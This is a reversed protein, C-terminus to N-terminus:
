EEKGGNKYKNWEWDGVGDGEMLKVGENERVEMGGKRVVLSEKGRIGWGLDKM